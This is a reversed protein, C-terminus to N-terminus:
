DPYCLTTSFHNSLLHYNLLYLKVYIIVLISSYAISCRKFIVHPSRTGKNPRDSPECPHTLQDLRPTGPERPKLIQLKAPVLRTLSRGVYPIRRSALCHM